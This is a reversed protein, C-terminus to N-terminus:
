DWDGVGLLSAIRQKEFKKGDIYASERVFNANWVVGLIEANVPIGSDLCYKYFEKALEAAVKYNDNLCEPEYEKGELRCLQKDAYCPMVRASGCSHAKNSTDTQKDNM